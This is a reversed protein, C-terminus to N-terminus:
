LLLVGESCMGFRSCYLITIDHDVIMDDLDLVRRKDDVVIMRERKLRKSVIIGREHQDSYSLLVGVSNFIDIRLTGEVRVPIAPVTLSVSLMGDSAGLRIIKLNFNQDEEFEDEAIM